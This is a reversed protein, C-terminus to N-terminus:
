TAAVDNSGSRKYTYWSPRARKAVSRYLSSLASRLYPSHRLTSFCSISMVPDSLTSHEHMDRCLGM